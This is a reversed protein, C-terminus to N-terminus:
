SEEGEKPAEQQPTAPQQGALRDLLPQVLSWFSEEDISESGPTGGGGCYTCGPEMGLCGRCAGFASAVRDILQHCRRLEAALGEMASYASRRDADLDPTITATGPGRPVHDPADAVPGPAGLLPVLHRMSPDGALQTSLWARLLQQTGNRSPAQSTDIV